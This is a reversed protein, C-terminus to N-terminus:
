FKYNYGVSVAHIRNNYIIEDGEDDNFVFTLIYGLTFENHKNLKYSTGVSTRVKDIQLFDGVRASNCAEVSLYPSFKWSKKDVEFKLRTRLMQTTESEKEKDEYSESSTIEEEMIPIMNFDEDFDFDIIKMLHEERYKYKANTITQAPRYTLQYRERLSIRLWRWFKKDASIEAIFRHRPYYYAKTLNYGIVYYDDVEPDGKSKDSYKGPKRSYLLTYGVGLKFNKNLKFGADLGFAWRSEEQARHEAELSLSWRTGLNKKAGVSIWTGYDDTWQAMLMTPLFLLLILLTKQKM